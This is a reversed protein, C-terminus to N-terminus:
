KKEEDRKKGAEKPSDKWGSPIKDGDEFLKSVVEGKEKKYKWIEM